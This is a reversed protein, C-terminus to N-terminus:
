PPIAFLQQFQIAWVYQLGENSLVVTFGIYHSIAAFIQKLCWLTSCVPWLTGDHLEVVPSEKCQIVGSSEKGCFTDMVSLGTIFREKHSSREGKERRSPLSLSGAGLDFFGQKSM